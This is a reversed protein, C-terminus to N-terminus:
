APQLTRMRPERVAGRRRGLQGLEPRRLDVAMPGSGSLVQHTDHDVANAAAADSRGFQRRCGLEAAVQLWCTYDRSEGLESSKSGGAYGGNAVWGVEGM